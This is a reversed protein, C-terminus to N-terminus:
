TTPPTTGPTCAANHPQLGGWDAALWDALSDAPAAALVRVPHAFRPAATALAALRAQLSARPMPDAVMLTPRRPRFATLAALVAPPDALYGCDWIDDARRARWWAMDQAKVRLKLRWRAAAGPLARLLRDGDLERSLAELCRATAPGADPLLGLALPVRPRDRRASGPELGALCWHRLAHLSAPSAAQAGPRAALPAVRLAGTDYRSLLSM